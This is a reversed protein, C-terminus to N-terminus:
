FKEVCVYKATPSTKTREFEQLLEAVSSERGVQPSSNRMCAAALSFQARHYGRWFSPSTGRHFRANLPM